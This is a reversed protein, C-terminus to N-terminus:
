SSPARRRATRSGSSTRDVPLPVVLCTLMLRGLLAFFLTACDYASLPPPPGVKDIQDLAERDPFKAASHAQKLCILTPLQIGNRARLGDLERLADAVHGEKLTAYARWFLMAPDNARKQLAQTAAVSM